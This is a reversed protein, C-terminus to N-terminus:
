RMRGRLERRIATETFGERGLAENPLPLGQQVRRQELMLWLEQLSLAWPPCPRPPTRKSRKRARRREWGKNVRRYKEPQCRPNAVGGANNFQALSFFERNFAVGFIRFLSEGQRSMGPSEVDNDFFSQFFEGGETFCERM